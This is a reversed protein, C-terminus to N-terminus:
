RAPKVGWRALAALIGQGTRDDGQYPQFILTATRIGRYPTDVSFSVCGPVPEGDVLIVTRSGRTLGNPESTTDETTATIERWVAIQITVEGIGVMPVDM